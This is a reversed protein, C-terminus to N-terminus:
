ALRCAITAVSLRPSNKQRLAKGCAALTAGTTMVDDVLLLHKAATPSLQPNLKFADAILAKRKQANAHALHPTNRIRQLYDPSFGANLHTALSRGFSFVQNYGRKRQRDPHLPVPVVMDVTQFIDIERLQHGLRNGCYTGITKQHHYKMQHIMKAVKGHQDFLFLSSSRFVPFINQLQEQMPNTAWLHYRTEPLEFGCRLCITNEWPQLHVRCIPCIPPLFLDLIATWMPLTSQHGKFKVFFM